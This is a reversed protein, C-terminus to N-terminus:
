PRQVRQGRLSQRHYWPDGTWSVKTGEGPVAHHDDQGRAADPQERGRDTSTRCAAQSRGLPEQILGDDIPAEAILPIKKNTGRRDAAGSLNDFSRSICGPISSGAEVSGPLLGLDRGLPIPRSVPMRTFVGDEM